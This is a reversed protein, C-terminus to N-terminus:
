LQASFRNKRRRFSRHSVGRIVRKARAWFRSDGIKDFFGTIGIRCRWGRSNQPPQFIEGQTLLPHRHRLSEFGRYPKEVTYRNLLGGGEAERGCCWKLSRRGSLRPQLCKNIPGSARAPCPKTGNGAQAPSAAVAGSQVKPRLSSASPM